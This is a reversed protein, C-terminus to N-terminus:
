ISCGSDGTMEEPRLPVEEYSFSYDLFNQFDEAVMLHYEELRKSEKGRIWKIESVNSAGRKANLVMAVAVGACTLKPLEFLDRQEQTMERLVNVRGEGKKFVFYNKERFLSRMHLSEKTDDVISQLYM